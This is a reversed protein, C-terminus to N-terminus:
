VTASWASTQGVPQLPAPKLRPLLWQVIMEKTDILDILEYASQDSGVSAGCFPAWDEEAALSEADLACDKLLAECVRMPERVKVTNVWEILVDTAM